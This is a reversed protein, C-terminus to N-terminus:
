EQPPREFCWGRRLMRAINRNRTPKALDFEDISEIRDKGASDEKNYDNRSKGHVGGGWDFPLIVGQCRTPGILPTGDPALQTTEIVFCESLDDKRM